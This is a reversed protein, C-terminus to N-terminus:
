EPKRAMTRAVITIVVGLLGASSSILNFIQTFAAFGIAIYMQVVLIIFGILGMGAALGIIFKGTGFRNTTMLFGGVIVGIGGLSAINILILLIWFLVDALAPALSAALAILDGWIGVSGVVGAYIMLAGGLLCLLFPVKNRMNEGSTHLHPTTYSQKAM